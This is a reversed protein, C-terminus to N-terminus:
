PDKPIQGVYSLEPRVQDGPHGQKAGRQPARRGSEWAACPTPSDIHRALTGPYALGSLYTFTRGSRAVVARVHAWAAADGAAGAAGAAARDARDPRAPRATAM